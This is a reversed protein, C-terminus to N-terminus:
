VSRRMAVQVIDACSCRGKLAVLLDTRMVGSFGPLWWTPSWAISRCAPDDEFVTGSSILAYEVTLGATKVGSSVSVTMTSAVDKAVSDNDDEGVGVLGECSLVMGAAEIGVGLVDAMATDVGTAAEGKTDTGVVGCAGVNGTDFNSAVNVNNPGAKKVVSASSVVGGVHLLEGEAKIVPSAIVNKSSTTLSGCCDSDRDMALMPPPPTVRILGANDDIGSSYWPKKSFWGSSHLESCVNDSASISNSM